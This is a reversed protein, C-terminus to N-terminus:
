ADSTEGHERLVTQYDVREGRYIRLMQDVVIDWNYRALIYEASQAKM